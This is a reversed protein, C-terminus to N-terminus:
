GGVIFESMVYGCRGGYRVKAWTKGYREVLDEVLLPTGNPIKWYLGNRKSPKARMKVPNGDPTLVTALAVQFGEEAQEPEVVEPAAVPEGFDLWKPLGVRNWSSRRTTTVVVAGRSASAHLAEENGLYVGMHSANGIGDSRYKAPEGGSPELIFLWAGAPIEGGFRAKCEDITGTWACARYHSNSGALNCENYSVGSRELLYECLGQCDMGLLSHGNAVYPIPSFEAHYRLVTAAEMYRSASVAM